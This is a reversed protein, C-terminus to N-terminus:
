KRCFPPGDEQGKGDLFTQLSDATLCIGESQRLDGYEPELRSTLARLLQALRPQHM